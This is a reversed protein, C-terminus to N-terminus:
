FGVSEASVFTQDSLHLAYGWSGRNLTTGWAAPSGRRGTWTSKGRRRRGRDAKNVKPGWLLNLDFGDPSHECSRSVRTVTVLVIRLAACGNPHALRGRYLPVESM